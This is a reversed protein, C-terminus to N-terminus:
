ELIFRAVMQAMVESQSNLEQSAAAAEQSTSSNSQVVESIREIGLTIQEISEEQSSTREHIEDIIQTVNDTEHLIATLADATLKAIKTGDNVKAITDEILSATEKAQKQSRAALTRVESAVVGFGKGYEGARAAEVAANLALLNTQFAIEDIVKIIKSINRSAETIGDMAHLMNTMEQNGNSASEMCKKSYVSADKAKRANEKTQENILTISANLEEVSSAQSSAGNALDMSTESIQRAGALVNDASGRIETLTYRLKEVIHNISLKINEYQGVYDRSIQNRLDGSAIKDLIDTIENIYSGTSGIMKDFSKMMRAFSGKYDMNVSIDFNGESLQALIENASNIPLNVTQVLKNLGETLKQWDGRYQETQVRVELNGNIANDILKNVDNSISFLNNKLAKLTDSALAKKGPMEVVQIHFDGNMFKKMSDIISLNDDILSNVAKNISSAVSKFEGNFYSDTIRADIDGLELERAMQNIGALLQVITNRVDQFSDVLQGIEDNSQKRLNVNLNGKAIESAAQEVAKIPKAISGTLYFYCLCIFILVLIALAAVFLYSFAATKNAEEVFHNSEVSSDDGIQKLLDIIQMLIKSYHEDLVELAKANENKSAYDLVQMRYTKGSTALAIAKEVKSTDPVLSLLEILANNFATGSNNAQDVCQKTTNVDSTTFSQYIGVQMTRIERRANMATVTALHATNKFETLQNAVKRLNMLAVAAVVIFLAIIVVFVVILKKGIKLNKLM